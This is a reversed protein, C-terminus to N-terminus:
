EAARAKWDTLLEVIVADIQKPSYDPPFFRRYRADGTPEGKPPKKEESLMDNIAETTLKGDQKMKKLRIAQSLSPKIQNNDMAIAVATQEMVSLYSLEVAPNFALQKADVKDIM